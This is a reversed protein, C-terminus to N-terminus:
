NDVDLNIACKSFFYQLLVVDLTRIEEGQFRFNESLCPMFSKWAYSGKCMFFQVSKLM